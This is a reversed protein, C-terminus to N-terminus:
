ELENHLQLLVGRFLDPPERINGNGSADKMGDGMSRGDASSETEAHSTRSSRRSRQDWGGRSHDNGNDDSESSSNSGDGGSDESDDDPRLQAERPLDKLAENAEIITNAGHDYAHLTPENDVWFPDHAHQAILAPWGEMFMEQFTAWINYSITQSQRSDLKWSPEVGKGLLVGELFLDKIYSAIVEAYYWEMASHQSSADQWQRRERQMHLLELVLARVPYM